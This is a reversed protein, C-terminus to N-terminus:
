LNELRRQAEEIKRDRRWRHLGCQLGPARVAIEEVLTGRLLALIRVHDGRGHRFGADYELTGHPRVPGELLMCVQRRMQAIISAPRSRRLRSHLGLFRARTRRIGLSVSLSNEGELFLLRPAFFLAPLFLGRPLLLTIATLPDDLLSLFGQVLGFPGM